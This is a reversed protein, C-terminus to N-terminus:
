PHSEWTKFAEWADAPRASVGCMLWYSREAPKLANWWAMGAEADPGPTAFTAPTATAPPPRASTEGLAPLAVALLRKAEQVATRWHLPGPEHPDGNHWDDSARELYHLAVRVALEVDPSASM